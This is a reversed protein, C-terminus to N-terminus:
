LYLISMLLSNFTNSQPIKQRSGKIETLVDRLTLMLDEPTDVKMLGVRGKLTRWLDFNLSRTLWSM